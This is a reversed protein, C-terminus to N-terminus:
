AYYDPLRGGPIGRAAKPFQPINQSCDYFSVGAQSMLSFTPDAAVAASPIWNHQNAEYALLWHEGTLVDSQNTTVTWAQKDLAGPPFLGCADADLALLAVVDDEMASIAQAAVASLPVNHALAGWVAWAVESGEGRRAHRDITSELTESLPSKSITHGGSTAVQYLTGLAVAIASLDAIAAGMICNQFARWANAHVKENQVRSVTYRLISEEPHDSAFELARSFLAVIDNRQGTPSGPGRVPFRGLDAGWSDELPKPLEEIRTKRPNLSLEFSALIGQPETLVQEADSLRLFSLEYDDVYRFGRILDPCRNLLENDVAALLVEAVVLSADPGIPIGHTQGENM